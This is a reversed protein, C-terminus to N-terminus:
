KQNSNEEKLLLDIDLMFKNVADADTGDAFARVRGKSDVLIINGSHDFGGPADPDEKAVAFYRNAIEYIKFKDGTVLSWKKSDINLKSAYEKLRGITDRTPDITHSLQLVKDNSKYRDYIRLMNKKVKPCITPCHTFFFDVIYIKGKYTGNNIIASDQNVFQFAPITAYITDGNVFDREGLIPLKKEDLGCSCIFLTSIAIFLTNKM